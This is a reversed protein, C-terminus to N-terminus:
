HTTETADPSRALVRLLRATPSDPEATYVLLAQDREQPVKVMEVQFSLTGAVPHAIDITVTDHDAIEHDDWSRALDPDGARLDDLLGLMRPDDPQRALDRRLWAICQLAFAKWNIIRERALPDLLIYHLISFGSELPRGHVESALANRALVGGGPEVLLVPVHDLSAM